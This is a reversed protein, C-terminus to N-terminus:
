DLHFMNSKKITVELKISMIKVCVITILKEKEIPGYIILIILTSRTVLITRRALFFLPNYASIAVIVSETLARNLTSKSRIRAKNM